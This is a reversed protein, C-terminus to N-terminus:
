VEEGLEGVALLLEAQFRRAKKASLEVDARMAKFKKKYKHDRAGLTELWVIVESARRCGSMKRATNFVAMADRRRQITSEKEDERSRYLGHELLQQKQM